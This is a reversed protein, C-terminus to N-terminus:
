NNGTLNNRNKIVRKEIKATNDGKGLNLKESSERQEKIETATDEIVTDGSDSQRDSADEYQADNIEKTGM